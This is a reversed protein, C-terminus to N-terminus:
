VSAETKLTIGASQADATLRDFVLKRVVPNKHPKDARVSQGSSLELYIGGDYDAFVERVVASAMPRRVRARHLLTQARAVDRRIQADARYQLQKLLLEHQQFRLDRANDIKKQTSAVIESVRDPTDTVNKNRALRQKLRELPSLRKPLLSTNM